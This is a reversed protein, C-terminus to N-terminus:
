DVSFNILFIKIPTNYTKFECNLLREFKPILNKIYTEASFGITIGDKNWHEDLYDVNGGLFFDPKGVGKLIYEEKLKEITTIPDKGWVLIDDVYIALYEYYDGRDRM